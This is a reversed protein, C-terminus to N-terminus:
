RAAEDLSTSAIPPSRRRLDHSPARAPRALPGCTSSPGPGCSTPRASSAWSCGTVTSSRCGSVHTRRSCARRRTRAVCERPGLDARADHPRRGDAAPRWPRRSMAANPDPEVQRLRQTAPDHQSRWLRPPGRREVAPRSTASRITRLPATVDILDEYAARIVELNAEVVAGGRKGFISRLPGRVADLLEDIPLGGRRRAARRAPVRRRARRGAHPRAPGARARLARRAGALRARRRQIGRALIEARAGRPCRPGSPRRSRDAAVTLFLTGGDVLGALPDGQGFASVDHLPVFEVHSSSATSRIPEDAITLYYTTPLGSRRRATARTPRSTCGSCSARRGPGAAQQHDRLRLRRDLPRAPQLRRAASHRRGPRAAGASPPHRARRVAPAAHARTTPSGTSCPWWTAPPCTARASAPRPRCSARFADHRRRRPRRACGQARPDAPQGVRRARRDARHRRRQARRRTRRALEDAPFPRFSTM